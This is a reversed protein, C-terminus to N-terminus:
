AIHLLNIDVIDWHCLLWIYCEGHTMLVFSWLFKHASATISEWSHCKILRASWLAPISKLPLISYSYFIQRGPEAALTPPRCLLHPPRGVKFALVTTSQSEVWSIDVWTDPRGQLRMASTAPVDGQQGTKCAVDKLFPLVRTVQWCAGAGSHGATM